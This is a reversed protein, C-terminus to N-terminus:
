LVPARYRVSGAVLAAAGAADALLEGILALPARSRWRVASRMLMWAYPAAAVLPIVSSFALAAIACAVVLDFAATRRNLFLRGFLLERRLEPVKAILAPFYTIRLRDAIYQRLGRRFIAHEVLAEPSFVIRAGARRARWGFWV